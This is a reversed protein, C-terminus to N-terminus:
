GLTYSLGLSLHLTKIIAPYVPSFAYYEPKIYGNEAIGEFILSDWANHKALGGLSKQVMIPPLFVCLKALGM